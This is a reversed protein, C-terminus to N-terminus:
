LSINNRGNRRRHGGLQPSRVPGSRSLRLRLGPPGTALKHVARSVQRTLFNLIITASNVVVTRQEEATFHTHGHGVMLVARRRPRASKSCGAGGDLACYLLKCYTIPNNKSLRPVHRRPKLEQKRTRRQQQQQWKQVPGDM